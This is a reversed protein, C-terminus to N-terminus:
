AGRTEGVVVGVLGAGQRTQKAQEFFTEVMMAIM